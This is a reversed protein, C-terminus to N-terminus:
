RPTFCSLPVYRASILGPEEAALSRPGDVNVAASDEASAAAVGLETLNRVGRLFRAKPAHPHFLPVDVRNPSGGLVCRFGKFDTDIVHLERLGHM